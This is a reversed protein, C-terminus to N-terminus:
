RVRKLGMAKAYQDKVQNAALDVYIQTTSINEHGLFEKLAMLNMDSEALRTAITHRLRHAHWGGTEGVARAACEKVILKVTGYGMPKGHYTLFLADTDVAFKARDNEMWKKLWTAATGMLPVIRQKNGKGTVRLERRAFDVDGLRLGLLEGARLGTAALLEMVTRNRRGRWTRLDPAEVLKRLQNDPIVKPLSSGSSKVRVEGAQPAHGEARLFACFSRVVAWTTRVTSARLGKRDLHALYSRAEEKTATSPDACFRLWDRLVLRAKYITLPSCNRERTLYACYQEILEM